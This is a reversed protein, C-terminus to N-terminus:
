NLINMNTKLWMQPQKKEEVRNLNYFKDKLDENSKFLGDKNFVECAEDFM